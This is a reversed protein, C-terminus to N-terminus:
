LIYCTCNQSLWLSTLISHVRSFLDYVYQLKFMLIGFSSHLVSLIFCILVLVFNFNVFIVLLMLPVHLSYFMSLCLVFCFLYCWMFCLLCFLVLYLVLSCFYTYITRSSMVSQLEHLICLLSIYNLNGIKVLILLPCSCISIKEQFQESAAKLSKGSNRLEM